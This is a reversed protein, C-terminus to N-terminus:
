IEDEVDTAEIDIQKVKNVNPLTFNINVEGVSVNGDLKTIIDAMQKLVKLANARDGDDICEGYLIELRMLISNTDVITNHKINDRIINITEVIKPNYLLEKTHRKAESNNEHLDYIDKVAAIASEGAAVKMCFQLTQETMRYGNYKEKLYAGVDDLKIYNRVRSPKNHPKYKSM